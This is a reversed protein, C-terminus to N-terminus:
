EKEFKLWRRRPLNCAKAREVFKIRDQDTEWVTQVDAWQDPRWENKAQLLYQLTLSYDPGGQADGTYRRVWRVKIVEEMAKRM